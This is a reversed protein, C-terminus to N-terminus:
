RALKKVESVIHDLSTNAKTFYRDVHYKLYTDTDESKGTRQMFTIMNSYDDFNTVIVVPTKRYKPHKKLNALIELGTANGPLYHDLWFVSVEPEEEIKANAEEATQSIIAELGEDALKAKIAPLLASDDEVVFITKIDAM